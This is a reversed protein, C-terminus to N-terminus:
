RVEVARLVLEIHWLVAEKVQTKMGFSTRSDVDDVHQGDVMSFVCIMVASKSKSRLFKAVESLVAHMSKSVPPDFVEYDGVKARFARLVEVAERCFEVLFKGDAIFSPFCTNESVAEDLEAMVDAWPEDPMTAVEIEVPEVWAPMPRRTTDQPATRIFLYPINGVRLTRKHEWGKKEEGEGKM